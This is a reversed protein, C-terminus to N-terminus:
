HDTCHHLAGGCSKCTHKTVSGTKLMAVAQNECDPCTMRSADRLTVVGKNGPGYGSSPAKFHVTHCKDCSVASAPVSSASQCSALLLVAFAGMAYLSARIFTTKM